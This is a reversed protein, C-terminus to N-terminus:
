AIDNIAACTSVSNVAIRICSGEDRGVTRSTNDSLPNSFVLRDGFNDSNPGAPFVQNSVAREYLSIPIITYPPGYENIAFHLNSTAVNNVISVSSYDM